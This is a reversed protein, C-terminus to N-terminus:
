QIIAACLTRQWGIVQTQSLGAAFTGNDEKTRLAYLTNREERSFQVETNVVYRTGREKQQGHEIRQLHAVYFKWNTSKQKSQHLSFPWNPLQRFRFTQIKWIYPEMSGFNLFLPSDHRFFQVKLARKYLASENARPLPGVLTYLSSSGGASNTLEFSYQM